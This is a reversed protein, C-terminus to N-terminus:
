ARASPVSSARSRAVRPPGSLGRVSGRRFQPHLPHRHARTRPAGPEAGALPAGRRAHLRLAGAVAPHRRLVWGGRATQSSYRTAGSVPEIPVLLGGVKTSLTYEDRPHARLADGLRQEATGYGYFPATDFYRVGSEWAHALLAAAQAEPVPAYLGGIEATGLGLRTVTVATGGLEVGSSRISAWTGSRRGSVRAGDGPGLGSGRPRRLNGPHMSGRGASTDERQVHGTGARDVPCPRGVADAMQFVGTAPGTRTSPTLISPSSWASRRTWPPGSM